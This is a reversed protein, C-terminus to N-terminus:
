APSPAIRIEVRRNKQRGAETDNSAIPQSEGFALAQVRSPDVGRQVLANKVAQARRDSLEMNYAETGTSDTHGEVRIVTQPYETLVKAIRDLEPYVGPNLVASNSAFTFDGKLAVTLLNGERKVAAANSRALADRMDREQNDMMRGVAAGGAGGLAAGIAGGLLTAETSRGIAQGLVAGAVAGGGAGYLGGQQTKTQPACAALLLAAGALIVLARKM